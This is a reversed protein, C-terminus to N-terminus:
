VVVVFFTQCVFIFLLNWPLLLRIVHIYFKQSKLGLVRPFRPLHIESNPLWLLIKMILDLGAQAVYHSRTEVCVYVFFFDPVPSISLCNFVCLAKVSSGSDM